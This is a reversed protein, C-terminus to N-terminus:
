EDFGKFFASGHSIQEALVHCHSSVPDACELGDFSETLELAAVFLRGADKSVEMARRFNLAVDFPALQRQGRRVFHCTEMNQGLAAGIALFRLSKAATSSPMGLYGRSLFRSSPRVVGGITDLVCQLSATVSGQKYYVENMTLDRTRIYARPSDVVEVGNASNFGFDEPMYQKSLALDQETMASGLRILDLDRPVGACPLGLARHLALRAAGGKFGYAEPLEPIEPPHEISFVVSFLKPDPAIQLRPNLSTMMEVAKDEFGSVNMRGGLRSVAFVANALDRAQLVFEDSLVSSVTTPCPAFIDPACRDRLFELVDSSTYRGPAQITPLAPRQAASEKDPSIGLSVALDKFSRFEPQMPSSIAKRNFRSLLELPLSCLNTWRRRYLKTSSRVCVAEAVNPDAGRESNESERGGTRNRHIFM